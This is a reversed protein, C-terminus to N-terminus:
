NKSRCQVRWSTEKDDIGLVGELYVSEACEDNVPCVHCDTTPCTSMHKFIVSQLVALERLKANEAQLKRYESGAFWDSQTFSVWLERESDSMREYWTYESPEGNVNRVACFEDPPEEGKALGYYKISM